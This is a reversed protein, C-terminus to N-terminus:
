NFLNVLFLSFKGDSPYHLGADIRCQNCKDALEQFTKQQSPYKKSLFKELLYAQYAHGAPFAPTQATEINLPHINKNIQWPRIRNFLYKFFLIIYNQKLSIQLLENYNENVYPEFAHAVSENTLYFFDKQSLSIENLNKEVIISEKKNSGFYLSPYYKIYGENLNLLILYLIIFFLIYIQM